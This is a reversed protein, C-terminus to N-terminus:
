GIEFMVGINIVNNFTDTLAEMENYLEHITIGIKNYTNYNKSKINYLKGDKTITFTAIKKM